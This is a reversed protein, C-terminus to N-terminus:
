NGQTGQGPGKVSPLMCSCDLPGAAFFQNVITTQCLGKRALFGSVLSCRRLALFPQDVCKRLLRWKRAWKQHQCHRDTPHRLPQNNM